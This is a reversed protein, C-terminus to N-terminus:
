IVHLDASRALVEVGFFLGHYVVQHHEAAVTGVEDEEFIAVVQAHVGGFLYDPVLSYQLHDVINVLDMLVLFFLLLPQDKLILQDVLYDHGVVAFCGIMLDFFDDKLIDFIDFQLIGIQGKLLIVQLFIPNSDLVALLRQQSDLGLSLSVLLELNIQHRLQTQHSANRIIEILKPPLLNGLLCDLSSVLFLPFNQLQHSM